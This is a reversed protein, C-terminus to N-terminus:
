YLLVQKGLVFTCIRVGPLAGVTVFEASRLKRAKRTCFNLYQCRLLASVTVFEVGRGGPPIRAASEPRVAPPPGAATPVLKLSAPMFFCARAREGERGREMGGERGGDRRRETEGERGEEMWGDM